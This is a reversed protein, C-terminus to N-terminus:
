KGTAAGSDGLWQRRNILV